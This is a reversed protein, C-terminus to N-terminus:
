RKDNGYNAAKPAPASRTSLRMQAVQTTATDAYAKSVLPLAWARYEATSIAGRDHLATLQLFQACSKKPIAAGIGVIMASVNAQAKCDLTPMAPMEGAFAATTTAFAISAAILVNKMPKRWQTQAFSVRAYKYILM